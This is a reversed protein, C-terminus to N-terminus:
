DMDVRALTPYPTDYGKVSHWIIRNFIDEPAEDIDDLPLQMSKEALRRQLGRCAQVPPNMEDLPIRNPQAEYPTLDPEDTFCNTMPNAAMNFQNMPALGFILEISRLLSNQNYHTSDVHGRRTYPSICFAVTRHGDVHDVGAQPDDEVVFIVTEPWFRSNSVAEVIRGLALDNDAITARPTPFGERTGVTHDNPLLMTILNPLEGAEEFRRFEKLFIEARYVDQVKGPFGIFETCTHPELGRVAARAKIM